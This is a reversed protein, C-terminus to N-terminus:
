RICAHRLDYAVDDTSNASTSVISQEIESSCEIANLQRTKGHLPACDVGRTIGELRLEQSRQKMGSAVDPCYM